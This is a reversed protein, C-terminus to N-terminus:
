RGYGADWIVSPRAKKRGRHTPVVRIPVARRTMVSSETTPAVVAAQVQADDQLDAAPRPAFSERGRLAIANTATPRVVRTPRAWQPGDRANRAVM